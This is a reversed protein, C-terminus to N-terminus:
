RLLDEIFCDAIELSESWSVNYLLRILVVGGGFLVATLLVLKFLGKM